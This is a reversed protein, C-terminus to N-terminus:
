GVRRFGRPAAHLREIGTETIHVLEGTQVGAKGDRTVVNPQIVVTMGAAFTFDPLPGATPRSKSGLVPPLYGGGYGHLIDDCTTFGAAEIVGAAEVVQAATAGARLTGAIADFARDAAAHLERYLPTPEAAIAFSRLVQGSYDWFNGSIETFLVDGASLRRTAPYQAPVCCDPAAMSTVGIFHIWNTGGWRLYSTEIIAGVERETLGPRLEAALAAIARDSFGAGIRLWRIEDASKRLRMQMYAPNFDPVTGFRQKLAELARYGIPGMFGVRGARAGRRELAAIAQGIASAEGWEVTAESALRRALPLHNYYQIYLADRTGPTIVGVAETTVPWQTLWQIAGGFRNAGYIVLHDVEAKAMAAATLARRREMEAASFRPYPMELIARLEEPFEPPALTPSPEIKTSAATESM